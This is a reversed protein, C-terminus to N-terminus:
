QQAQKGTKQESFVGRSHACVIVFAAANRRRALEGAIRQTKIKGHTM